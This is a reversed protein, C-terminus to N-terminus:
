TLPLLPTIQLISNSSAVSLNGIFTFSDLRPNEMLNAFSVIPTTTGTSLDTGQLIYLNWSPNDYNYFVGNIIVAGNYSYGPVHVDTLVPRGDYVGDYRHLLTADYRDLFYLTGDNSPVLQAYMQENEYFGAVPAHAGTTLDIQTLGAFNSVVVSNKGFAVILNACNTAGDALYTMAGTDNIYLVGTNMWGNDYGYTSFAVGGSPLATIARPNVLAPLVSSADVVSDVGGVIHHIENNAMYWVSGDTAYASSSIWAVGTAVDHYNGAVYEPGTTFDIRVGGGWGIYWGYGQILAYYDTSLALGGLWCSNSGIGSYSQCQAVYTGDMKHIEMRTYWMSGYGEAASWLGSVSNGAITVSADSIQVYPDGTTGSGTAGTSQVNYGDIAYLIYKYKTLPSLGYITISTGGGWWSYGSSVLYPDGNADLTWAEARWYAATNNAPLTWSIDTSWYQQTFSVNTADDPKVADGTQFTTAGIDLWGLGSAYTHLAYSLTSNAPLNRLFCHYSGDTWNYCNTLYSGNTDYFYIYNWLTGYTSSVTFDLSITNGVVTSSTVTFTPRVNPPTFSISDEPSQGYSNIATLVVRYTNPYSMGGVWNSRQWPSINTNWVLTETGDGNQLYVAIAYYNVGVTGANTPETWTSSYGYVDDGTVNFNRPVSPIPASTSFTASADVEATGLAVDGKMGGYEIFTYAGNFPSNDNLCYYGTTLITETLGSHNPEGPCFQVTSGNLNVGTTEAGGWPNTLQGGTAFQTGSKPGSIWYWKQFSANPDSQYDSTWATSQDNGAYLYSYLPLGTVPDKIYAPDESGGFFISDTAYGNLFNLQQQSDPTAMYGQLGLLSQQEAFSLNFSFNGSNPTWLTTAYYHGNLPNYLINNPTAIAYISVPASSVNPYIVLHSLDYNVSYTDGSFTILSRGGWYESQYTSNSARGQNISVTANTVWVTVMWNRPLNAVTINAGSSSLSSITANSFNNATQLDTPISITPLATTITELFATPGDGAVNTAVVTVDYATGVTLGTIRCTYAFSDFTTIGKSTTTCSHVDGSSGTAILRYNVVPGALGSFLPANWIGQIWTDGWTYVSGGQPASPENTQPMASVGASIFRHPWNEFDIPLPTGSLGGVFRPNLGPTPTYTFGIVEAYTNYGSLCGVDGIYITGSSDTSLWWPSCLDGGRWMANYWGGDLQDFINDAISAIDGLCVDSIWVTGNGDITIGDICAAGYIYKVYWEGTAYDYLRLSNDDTAFILEGNPGVAFQYNNGWTNSGIYLYEGADSIYFMDGCSNETYIGGNPGAVMFRVNCDWDETVVSNLLSLRAQVAPDSAAFGVWNDYAIWGDGSEIITQPNPLAPAKSVPSNGALNTAMVTFTYTVFNTLGTVICSFTSGDTTCTGAVDGASDYATVTYGTIPSGGDTTPSNWSVTVQSVGASATINTPVGPLTFPVTSAESSALSDGVSNTAVVTVYYTVGNTLGTVTCTTDTTATCSFYNEQDDYVSVTYGTIESGGNNTPATWAVVMSTSSPTLTLSTPADPVTVNPSPTGSASLSAASDGANNTAVVAVTYTTGNTLGTITCTTETTSTCTFVGGDGDDATATYRYIDDGRSSLPVTWSVALSGDDKTVVVTLPPTPTTYPKATLPASDVSSGADNAAAVTVTYQVGNTLGTITCSTATAVQCTFVGGDGDDATAIYGTVKAGGTTIPASIAVTLTGDDPTVSSITPSGPVTLPTGTVGTSATSDGTSNTAVVTFTYTVGNVLKTVLCSLTVTTCTFVGGDGDDATVTYSTIATGGTVAPATFTVTASANGPTVVVSTPASPVDGPTASKSTSNESDGVGNTAVVTVTYTVGNTLGTITCSLETSTCTFVGGDGDDATATYGSIAGGGDSAPTSWSVEISAAGPTLAVSLPAGPANFGTTFPGAVESSISYGEANHAMVRVVYDTATTLGPITCTLADTVHCHSVLAGTTALYAMANYGDIDLGGNSAPADWSVGLSTPAPAVQVNTPSTPRDTIAVSNSNASAVSTGIANTATVTFTYSVGAQLDSLVCTTTTSTCTLADPSSTVTYSTVPNSLGTVAMWMVRAHLGFGTANVGSPASPVTAAPTFTQPASPPSMGDGNVAFVNATYTTGNTLGRVVCSTTITVCSANSPKVMVVYRTATNVKAWAFSGQQDGPTATFNTPSSAIAHARVHPKPAVRSHAHRVIHKKHRVTANAPAAFSVLVGATVAFTAVRRTFAMM